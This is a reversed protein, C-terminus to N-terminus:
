EKTEESEFIFWRQKAKPSTQNWSHTPPPDMGKGPKSALSQAVAIQRQLEPAMLGSCDLKDPQTLSLWLTFGPHKSLLASSMQPSPHIFSQVQSCKPNRRVPFKYKCHCMMPPILVDCAM